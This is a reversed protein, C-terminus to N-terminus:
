LGLKFGYYYERKAACCGYDAEQQRFGSRNARNTKCVPVPITDIIQWPAHQEGGQAVIQPQILAQIQWLNAAQRLFLTRHTLKPFFHPYHDHFYGFIIFDDRSM